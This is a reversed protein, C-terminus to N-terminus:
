TKDSGSCYTLLLLTGMSCNLISKLPGRGDEHLFLYKRVTTSSYERNGKTM